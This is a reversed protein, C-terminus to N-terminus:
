HAQPAEPHFQAGRRLRHQVTGGVLDFIPQWFAPPLYNQNGQEGSHVKVAINGTLEHGLAQYLRVVAQPTCDKTFYVTSSM